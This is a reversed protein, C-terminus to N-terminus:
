ERKITRAYENADRARQEITPRSKLVLPRMLKNYLLQSGGKPGPAMLWILFLCKGLWYFPLTHFFNHGIYEIFGFLAYVVWYILWETDDHTTKSEIALISAYAPYIFGLFNCVFDNAWGIILYIALFGFLGLAIQERKVPVKKEILDWYSSLPGKYLYPQLKQEIKRIQTQVAAAM